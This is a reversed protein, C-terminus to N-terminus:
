PFSKGQEAIRCLCGALKISILKSPRALVLPRTLEKCPVVLVPLVVPDGAQAWTSESFFPCLGPGGCQELILKIKSTQPSCQIQSVRTYKDPAM